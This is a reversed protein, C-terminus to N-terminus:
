KSSHSASGESSTAQQQTELWSDLDSIQYGIARGGLRVFRPGGGTSRKKELTSPALGLYEAAQKTRLVRRAILEVAQRIHTTSAM